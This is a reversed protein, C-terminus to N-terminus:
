HATLPGVGVALHAYEDSRLTASMGSARKGEM